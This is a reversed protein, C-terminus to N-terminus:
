ESTPHLGCRYFTSSVQPDQGGASVRLYYTQDPSVTLAPKSAGEYDSWWIDAADSEVEFQLENDADDHIAFRASELGSGSRAAGCAVSLTDASGVDFAFYDVDGAPDIEGLIFGSGDSITITEATALTDNSNDGAEQEAPNDTDTNLQRIVYFDNAGATAGDPRQLWLAVEAGAPLPVSMDSSGLSADLSAIVNGSGDSLQVLGPEATSGHGEAADAGSGGPGIPMFYFHSAVNGAPQTYSFVEVDDAPDFVGYPFAYTNSSSTPEYFEMEQANDLDDNPEAEPNPGNVTDMPLAFLVYKWSSDSEPTEGAWSSWEEVKLCLTGSEAARYFLETDTSFRPISDDGTALLTSGDENYVSVVTDLMETDDEPNASTFIAIFDGEDVELAYHDADGDSNIWGEVGAEDGLEIPLAEACSDDHIETDTDTDTDSDADTDADSDADGGDPTGEDKNDDGCGLALAAAALVCILLTWNRM